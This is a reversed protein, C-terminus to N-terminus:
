NQLLLCRAQIQTPCHLTKQVESIRLALAGYLSAWGIPQAEKKTIGGSKCYGISLYAKETLLLVM